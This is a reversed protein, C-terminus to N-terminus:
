FNMWYIDLPRGEHVIAIRAKCHYDGFSGFDNWGLEPKWQWKLIDGDRM